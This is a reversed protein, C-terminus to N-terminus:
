FVFKAARWSGILERLALEAARATDLADQIRQRVDFQQKLAQRSAARQPGSRTGESEGDGEVRKGAEDIDNIVGTAEWPMNWQHRRGLQSTERQSLPSRM